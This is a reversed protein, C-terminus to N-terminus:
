DLVYLLVDYTMLLVILLVYANHRRFQPVIPVHLICSLTIYGGVGYTYAVKIWFGSFNNTNTTRSYSKMLLKPYVGETEM